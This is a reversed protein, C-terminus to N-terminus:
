SCYMMQIIAHTRGSVSNRFVNNLALQEKVLHWNGAQSSLQTCIVLKTTGGGRLGASSSM